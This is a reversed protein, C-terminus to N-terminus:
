ALFSPEPQLERLLGECAAIHEQLWNLACGRRHSRAPWWNLADMERLLSLEEHYYGVLANRAAATMEALRRGKVRQLGNEIMAAAAPSRPQREPGLYYPRSDRSTGHRCALTDLWSAYDATDFYRLIAKRQRADFVACLTGGGAGNDNEHARWRRGLDLLTELPPLPTQAKGIM